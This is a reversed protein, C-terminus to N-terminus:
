GALMWDGLEPWEPMRGWREQPFLPLFFPVQGRERVGKRVRQGREKEFTLSFTGSGKGEGEGEEGRGGTIKDHHMRKIVQHAAARMEETRLGM